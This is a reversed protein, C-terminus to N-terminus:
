YPAAGTRILQYTRNKLIRVLQENSTIKEETLIGGDVHNEADHFDSGSTPILSFREAWVAAMDNRSSQGTLGNYIEIGDLLTPEVIRMFNRFPHAQILLIGNARCLLSLKKISIDLLDPHSLLFSETVGYLLYDNDDTNLRLECGPLIILRGQAEQTLRTFGSMFHRVKEEWSPFRGGFTFRSFHNTLVLTSYGEKVYRSVIYTVPANACTSVDSTHLHLETKYMDVEAFDNM